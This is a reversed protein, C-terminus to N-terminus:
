RFPALASGGIAVGPAYAYVGARHTNGSTVYVRGQTGAPHRLAASNDVALGVPSSSIANYKLHGLYSGAANFVQITSQPSEAHEPQIEDAVYITGDFDDVAVAADRLSTFGGPPGPIEAVPDDADADPDYVKVTNSVADPVYLFGATAAFGSVAIGYGDELSAAGIDQVFAGSPDYEAIQDRLNVYAHNTAPDVAVGTAHESGALVTGTGISIPAGFRVVNRHFNNLYLNGAFDLDLACPDDAPGSHSGFPTSAILPQGELQVASSYVDVARHYHDSVWFNGSGDVTLGCPGNFYGTPPPVIQGLPPTPSLIFLPDGLAAQAPTALPASLALVALLVGLVAGAGRQRRHKGNMAM